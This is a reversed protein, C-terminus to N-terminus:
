LADLLHAQPLHITFYQQVIPKAGFSEKWYALGQNIKMGNQESVNGFSVHHTPHYRQIVYDFLVDLAATDM